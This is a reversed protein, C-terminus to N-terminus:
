RSTEPTLAPLSPAPAIAARLTAATADVMADFDFHAALRESARASLKRGLEPDNWLREIAAQLAAEDGVPILLGTTEHEVVEGTGGADTAIVPISASMAELVVHPLGEYTSNLVFADACRMVQHVEASPIHGLFIVREALGLTTALAALKERESGGGAIVLRTDGLHPLRRIIADVGKWPVLRCVTLLTRGRWEPWPLPAPTEGAWQPRSSRLVIRCGPRAAGSTRYGPRPAEGTRCGPRAAESTRCAPRSGWKAEGEPAATNYIVSIKEKPIQWNSVIRRLYQSPVIIHRAWRLPFTRIFDFFRLTLDKPATQYEDLTASFVGRGVAREWAYDGVIKHVTARGAFAAAVASESGLGSVFVLANERAARWITFITKVIRLPWFIGRRIRQVAFPFASDDHDLRDSLCIVEVSIGRAALAAAMRPVYSAPGGHDPPFIGTVMLLRVAGPRAADPRRARRIPIWVGLALTSLGVSWPTVAPHTAQMEARAELFQAPKKFPHGFEWPDTLKGEPASAELLGDLFAPRLAYRIAEPDRERRLERAPLDSPAPPEAAQLFSALLLILPILTLARGNIPTLRTARPAQPPGLRRRGPGASAPAKRALFLKWSEFLRISAAPRNSKRCARSTSRQVNFTSRQAAAPVTGTRDPTQVTSAGNKWFVGHM